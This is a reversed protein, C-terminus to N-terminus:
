AGVLPAAALGPAPRASRVAIACAGTPQDAVWTAPPPVHSRPESREGRKAVRGRNPAHCLPRAPAGGAHGAGKAPKALSRTGPGTTQM